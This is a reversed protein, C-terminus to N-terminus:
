QVRDYALEGPSERTGMIWGIVQSRSTEKLPAEAFNAGHFLAMVRDCVYFIDDMRHSILVVGIGRQKLGKILDLVKGVEKVALAATPEDMIVVKARFATARAIAVAQRQGGSLEGVKQEVSKVHIRLNDLHQQAQELTFEM